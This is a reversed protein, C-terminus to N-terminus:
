SSWAGLDIHLIGLDSAASTLSTGSQFALAFSAAMGSKGFTPWADPMVPRVGEPLVAVRPPFVLCVPMTSPFGQEWGAQALDAMASCISFNMTGIDFGFFSDHDFDLM